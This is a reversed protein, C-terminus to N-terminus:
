NIVIIGQEALFEIGKIFDSDSILDAAWWGANSKIWSPIEQTGSSKHEIDPIVIIKENILFQISNVFEDDGVIGDAWWGANNKIWPAITDSQKIEVSADLIDFDDVASFFSEYNRGEDGTLILKLQYNGESFITIQEENVGDQALVGLFMENSGINSWAEKGDSDLINYAYLANKLHIKNADFFSFKFSTEEGIKMESNWTVIASKGNEFNFNLENLQIQNGPLIEVSLMDKREDNESNKQIRELIKHPIDIKIINKNTNTADVSFTKEIRTGDVFVNVSHDERFESFNKELQIFQKSQSHNEEGHNNNFPIDYSIKNTSEDFNFNLVKGEFSKILIPFEQADATQILFNQKEPISLFTEFYLDTATMTKPNTAGVISVKIDYLGGKDFVPGQIVPRSDGRGYYGGAIPHKEGFYKTCKWLDKEVCGETPKIELDLNGNEDYFYESAVLNEGQFIQVRYTVSPINTNTTSDFFRLLLNASNKDEFTFDEPTLISTLAVQMGGFDVPPALAGSHHQAYAPSISVTVLISISLILWRSIM